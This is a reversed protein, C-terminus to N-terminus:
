IGKIIGAFSDDLLIMDAADKAVDSGTIGM